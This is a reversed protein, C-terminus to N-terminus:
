LLKGGIDDLTTGYPSFDEEIKKFYKLSQEKKPKLKFKKYQEM